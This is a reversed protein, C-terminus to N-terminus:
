SAIAGANDVVYVNQGVKYLTNAAWLDAKAGFTEKILDARSEPLVIDYAPVPNSADGKYVKENIQASRIKNLELAM